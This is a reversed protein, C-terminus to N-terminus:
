SKTEMKFDRFRWKKPAPADSVEDQVLSAVDARTLIGGCPVLWEPLYFLIYGPQTYKVAVVSLNRARLDLNMNFVEGTLGILSEHIPGFGPHEGIDYPVACCMVKDGVKFTM